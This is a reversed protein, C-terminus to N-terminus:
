CNWWYVHKNHVLYGLMYIQRGAYKVAAEKAWKISKVVGLCYGRPTVKVVKMKESVM